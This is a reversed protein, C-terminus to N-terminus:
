KQEFNNGNVGCRGVARESWCFGGIKGSIRDVTTPHLCNAEDWKNGFISFLSYWPTPRAFKCDKCFKTNMNTITANFM